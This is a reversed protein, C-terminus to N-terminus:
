KQEHDKINKDLVKASSSGDIRNITATLFIIAEEPLNGPIYLEFVFRDEEIVTGLVLRRKTEESLEYNVLNQKILGKAIEEAEILNIKKM